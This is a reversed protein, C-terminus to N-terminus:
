VRLKKLCNVCIRGATDCLYVMEFVGYQQELVREHESDGDREKVRGRSFPNRRRRATSVGSM